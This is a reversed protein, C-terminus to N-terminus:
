NTNWRIGTREGWKKKKRESKKIPDANLRAQANLASIEFHLVALTSLRNKLIDMGGRTREKEFRIMKEGGKQEAKKIEKNKPHILWVANAYEEANM